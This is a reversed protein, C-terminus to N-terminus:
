RGSMMLTVRIFIYITSDFHDGLQIMLCKVKGLSFYYAVDLLFVKTVNGRM